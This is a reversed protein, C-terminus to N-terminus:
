QRVSGFSVVISPESNEGVGISGCGVAVAVMVGMVAAAAAAFLEPVGM